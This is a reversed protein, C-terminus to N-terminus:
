EVVPKEITGAKLLAEKIRKDRLEIGAQMAAVLATGDDLDKKVNKLVGFHEGLAVLAKVKDHMKLEQTITEGDDGFKQRIVKVEKISRTDLDSSNHTMVDTGDWTQFTGINSLGVAALEQIVRDGDIQLRTKRKEMLISLRSQVDERQFFRSANGCAQAYDCGYASRYSRVCNMDKLYELCFIEIREEIKGEHSHGFNSHPPVKESATKKKQGKPGKIGKPM